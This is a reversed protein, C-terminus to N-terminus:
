FNKFLIVDEKSEKFGNGIYFKYASFSRVTSLWIMKIENEKLLDEIEKLFKKGFGQNQYDNGICFEKVFLEKGQWWHFVYGLCIGILLNEQYYGISLSNPNDILDMIYDTLQQDSKWNDNWPENSFVELFVKKIEAIENIGLYKVM